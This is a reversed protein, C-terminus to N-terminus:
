KLGDRRRRDSRIEPLRRYELPLVGYTEAFVKAFKGQNEYGVANAIEIVKLDTTKLLEAAKEMRKKRFYVLYSEGLIGKIYLKFSSESVGFYEAMEKATIRRSLDQIILSEAEKVIAIQSRTFCVDKESECPMDLLEYLMKVTFYRLTGTNPNEKLNWVKRVTEQLVDSMRHLYTGNSKCFMKRINEVQIGMQSVFDMGNAKRIYELDVFIQVGEYLRGPYYFDKTPLFTSVCIQKERVIAYRNHALSVDCRGSMCFNFILMQDSFLSSDGKTWSNTYIRDFCMSIGPALMYIDVQGEQERKFCVHEQNKRNMNGYYWGTM